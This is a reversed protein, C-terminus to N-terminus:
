VSRLQPQQAPGEILLNGEDGSVLGYSLQAMDLPAGSGSWNQVLVWYTGADPDALDCFEDATGSRQICVMTDESPTDGTGVMLDLDPSESDYTEAVM